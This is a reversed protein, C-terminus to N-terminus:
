IKHWSAPILDKTDFDAKDFWNQPAIVIKGPHDNLWAGWWSFSSNAIINHRCLSMLRMDEFSKKGTNHEVYEAPFDVKLNEQVWQIDDSFFFFHPNNEKQLIFEIANKYYNIGCVGHFSNTYNNTIYDGRRVHIGIANVEKITDALNKNRIDEVDPFSFEKLLVHRINKFYLESQWYGELYTNRPLQAVEEHYHYHLERFYKRPAFKEIIREKLGNRRGNEMFREVDRDTAFDQPIDFIGLEYERKIITENSPTNLLFSLDMKIKTNHRNSLSRATAYQFMQNGLGGM